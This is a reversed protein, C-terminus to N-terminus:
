DCNIPYSAEPLNLEKLDTPAKHVPPEYVISESVEPEFSSFPSCPLSICQETGQVPHHDEPFQVSLHDPQSSSTCPLLCPVSECFEPLLANNPLLSIDARGPLDDPILIVPQALPRPKPSQRRKQQQKQKHPQQQRALMKADSPAPSKTAVVFHLTAGSAQQFSKKSKNITGWIGNKSASDAKDSSGTKTPSKPRRRAQNLMAYTTDTSPLLEDLAVSHADNDEITNLSYTRQSSSTDVPYSLLESSSLPIVVSHDPQHDRLSEEQRYQQPFPQDPHHYPDDSSYSGIYGNTLLSHDEQKLILDDPVKTSPKCSAEILSTDSSTIQSEHLEVSIKSSKDTFLDHTPALLTNGQILNPSKLKEILDDM